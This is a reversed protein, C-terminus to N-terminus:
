GEAGEQDLLFDVASHQLSVHQHRDVVELGDEVVYQLEAPWPALCAWPEAHVGRLRARLEDDGSDCRPRRGFARAHLHAIDDDLHGAGLGGPEGVQPPADPAEAGGAGEDGELDQTFGRQEVEGDVRAVAVVEELFRVQVLCIPTLGWNLLIPTLGRNAADPEVELWDEVPPALGPSSFTAPLRIGVMQRMVSQKCSHHNSEM